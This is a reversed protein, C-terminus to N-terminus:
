CIPNQKKMQVRLTALSVALNESQVIGHNPVKLHVPAFNWIATIGCDVLNDCVSQASEAPVAIIGIYVDYHRCFSELRSMPYIPKGSETQDACPDLDFGAMVNLGSEEFGSYDLLARGLKGAGIVVTGTKAAFDLYREIDRILQERGRGTRRRGAESVKALDKRVQVDGLGLAKAMSTASVNTNEPLSKLHALYGPLRKLLKKSIKATEM